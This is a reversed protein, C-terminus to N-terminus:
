RPEAVLQVSRVRGEVLNRRLNGSPIEFDDTRIVHIGLDSPETRLQPLDHSRLARDSIAETVDDWVTITFGATDLADRMADPTLLHSIAPDDAWPVPYVVSGGDGQLVDHMALRGDPRLVRHMEAYLGARDGINMAVHQSWVIDFAGDAFPLRLANATQFTTQNQLGTRASLMTAVDVFPQNLDIGTVICGYMAALFRAPGGIGCGVDLVQAGTTPALAEALRQTAALGGSHFQDLATLDVWSIPGDGLGAAELAQSVRGILSESGYHDAVADPDTM